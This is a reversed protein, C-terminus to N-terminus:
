KQAEAEVAKVEAANEIEEKANLVKTFKCTADVYASWKEADYPLGAAIAFGQLKAMVAEKKYPGASEGQQKLIVDLNKYFVEAKEMLKNAEERLMDNAKAEAEAKEKEDTICKAAKKARTARVFGIVTTTTGIVFMVCIYIIQFINMSTPQM